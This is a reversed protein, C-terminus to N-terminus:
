TDTHHVHVQFLKGRLEKRSVFLLRIEPGLQDVSQNHIHQKGGGRLHQVTQHDACKWEVRKQGSESARETYKHECTRKPEKDKTM